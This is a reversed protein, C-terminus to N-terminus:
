RLLREWEYYYDRVTSASMHYKKGVIAFVGGTKKEGIKVGREMLDKCEQHITVALTAAKHARGRHYYRPRRVKFAEDLTAASHTVYSLTADHLRDRLFKPFPFNMSVGREMAALLAIGDGKEIRQSEFQLEHLLDRTRTLKHKVQDSPSLPNGAQDVLDGPRPYSLNFLVSFAEQLTCGLDKRIKVVVERITEVPSGPEPPTKRKAKAM